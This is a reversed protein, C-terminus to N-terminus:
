QPFYDLATSNLHNKKNNNNEIEPPHTKLSILSMKTQRSLDNKKLNLLEVTTIAALHRLFLQLFINEM